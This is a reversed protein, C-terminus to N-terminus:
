TREEAERHAHFLQPNSRAYGRIIVTPLDSIKVNVARRLVEIDLSSSSAAFDFNDILNIEGFSV